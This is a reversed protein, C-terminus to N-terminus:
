FPAPENESQPKRNASFDVGGATLELTAMAKGSDNIYASAKLRDGTVIVFDGKNVYQAVTKGLGNWCSVRYWTPDADRNRMNNVAVNITTVTNEGVQRTEAQGGVYGGIIINQM